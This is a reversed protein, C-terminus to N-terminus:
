SGPGRPSGQPAHSAHRSRALPNASAPTASGSTSRNPPRQRGSAAPVIVPVWAPRGSRAAAELVRAPITVQGKGTVTADAM